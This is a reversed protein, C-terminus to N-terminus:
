ARRKMANDRQGAIHGTDAAALKRAHALMRRMQQFNWCNDNFAPISTRGRSERRIARRLYDGAGDHRVKLTRRVHALAGQLCYRGKHHEAGRIWGDGGDFLETLRDIIAVTLAGQMQALQADRPSAPRRAIPLGAAEKMAAVCGDFPM